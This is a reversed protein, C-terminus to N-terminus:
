PTITFINIIQHSNALSSVHIFHQHQTVQQDSKPKL